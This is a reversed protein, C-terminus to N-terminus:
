SITYLLNVFNLFSVSVWEMSGLDQQVLKEM